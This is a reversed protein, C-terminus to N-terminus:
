CEPLVQGASARVVQTIAESADALAEASVAHQTKLASLHDIANALSTSQGRLRYEELCVEAATLTRLKAELNARLDVLTIALLDLHRSPM